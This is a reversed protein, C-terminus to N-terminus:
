DKSLIETDDDSVIERFSKGMITCENLLSNMDAYWGVTVFEDAIPYHHKTFKMIMVHYVAKKDDLLVAEENTIIERCMRFYSDKYKFELGM